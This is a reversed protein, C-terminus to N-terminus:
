SFVELGWLGLPTMKLPIKMILWSSFIFADALGAKVVAAVGM